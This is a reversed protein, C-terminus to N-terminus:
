TAKNTTTATTTTLQNATHNISICGGRSLIWDLQTRNTHLQTSPHTVVLPNRGTVIPFAVPLPEPSAVIVSVLPTSRASFLVPAMFSHSYTHREGIVSCSGIAKHKTDSKYGAVFSNSSSGQKGGNGHRAQERRQLSRSDITVMVMMVARTNHNAKDNNTTQQWKVIGPM